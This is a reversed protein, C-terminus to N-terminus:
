GRGLPLFSRLWGRSGTPGGACCGSVPRRHTTAGVAAATARGGTGAPWGGGAGAPWGGGAGGRGGVALGGLRMPPVLGAGARARRWRRAWWRRARPAPPSLRPPVAGRLAPRRGDGNARRPLGIVRRPPRATLARGAPPAAASSTGATAAAPARRGAVVRCRPSDCAPTDGWERGGWGGRGTAAVGWVRQRRATAQRRAGAAPGGRWPCDGRDCGRAAALAAARGGPAPACRVGGGGRRIPRADCARSRRAGLPPPGARGAAAAAV